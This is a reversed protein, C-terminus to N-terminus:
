EMISTIFVCYSDRIHLPMLKNGIIKPRRPRECRSGPVKGLGFFEGLPTKLSIFFALRRRQEESRKSAYVGTRPAACEEPAGLMKVKKMLRPKDVLQFEGLPTKKINEPLYPGLIERAYMM